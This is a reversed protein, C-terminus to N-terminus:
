AAGAFAGFFAGVLAGVVVGVVAGVTAWFTETVPIRQPRDTSATVPARVTRNTKSKLAGIVTSWNTVEFGFQRMTNVIRPALASLSFIAGEGSGVTTLPIFRSVEVFSVRWTMISKGASNVASCYLTNVKFASGCAFLGKRTTTSM